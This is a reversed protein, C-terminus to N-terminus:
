CEVEFALITDSLGGCSGLCRFNGGPLRNTRAQYLGTVCGTVQTNPAPEVVAAFTVGLYKAGRQTAGVTFGDIHKCPQSVDDAVGAEPWRLCPLGTV